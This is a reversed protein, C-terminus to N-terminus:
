GLIHFAIQNKYRLIKDSPIHNKLFLHKPNNSFTPNILEDSQARAFYLPCNPLGELSIQESDVRLKPNSPPPFELPNKSLYLKLLYQSYEKDMSLSIHEDVGAKKLNAFEEFKIPKYPFNDSFTGDIFRICENFAKQTAQELNAHLGFGLFIGFPKGISNIGNAIAMVGIQNISEGMIGFTLEIGLKKLQQIAYHETSSKQPIFAKVAAGSFHIRMYLDREQLEQVANIKSTELDTHIACGNSNIYGKQIFVLRELAEISSVTISTLQDNSTYIGFFTRQNFTIFSCTYFKPLIEKFPLYWDRKFIKLDLKDKYKLFWLNAEKLHFKKKDM